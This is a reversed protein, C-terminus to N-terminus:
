LCIRKRSFINSVDNIIKNRRACPSLLSMLIMALCYVICTYKVIVWSYSGCQYNVATLNQFRIYYMKM